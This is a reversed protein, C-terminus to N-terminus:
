LGKQIQGPQKLTTSKEALRNETCYYLQPLCSAQLLLSMSHYGLDVFATFSSLFSRVVNECVWICGWRSIIELFAFPARAKM